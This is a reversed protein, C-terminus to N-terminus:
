EDLDMWWYWSNGPLMTWSFSEEHSGSKRLNSSKRCIKSIRKTIVCDIEWHKFMLRLHKKVFESRALKRHFQENMKAISKEISSFSQGLIQQALEDCWDAVAGYISLQNTSNITRFWLEANSPDGSFHISSKTDESASSARFVPHGSDEFNSNRLMQPTM